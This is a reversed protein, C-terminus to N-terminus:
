RAATLLPSASQCSPDTTIRVRANRTRRRIRLMPPPTPRQIRLIHLDGQQTVLRRYKASLHGPRAVRRAIDDGIGAKRRRLGVDVSAQPSAPDWSQPVFLRWDVPYSATDTVMSVRLAVQCNTVKGATGAYQRAVCPSATGCKLLGTDDIAWAAAAVTEDILEAIRERVPM